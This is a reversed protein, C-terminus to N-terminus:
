HSNSEHITFEAALDFMTRGFGVGVNILRNNDPADWCNRALAARFQGSEPWKRLM